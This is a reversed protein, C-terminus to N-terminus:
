TLLSGMSESFVLTQSVAVGDHELVAESVAPEHTVHAVSDRAVIFCVGNCSSFFCDTGASARDVVKRSSTGLLASIIHDAVPLLDADLGVLVDQVLWEPEGTLRDRWEGERTERAVM